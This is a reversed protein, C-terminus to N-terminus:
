AANKLKAIQKELQKIRQEKAKKQKDQLLDQNYEKKEKLMTYIIRALKHATALAAGKGGFKARMRRYYDGLPTKNSFLTSAAMRLSQGAKNKKKMVRSSIAKGGSVKTNPTLNLWAAFHKASKWKNMDVGTESILEIATVENVGPIKCLNVGSMQQLYSAVAFNFQNKKPKKPKKKSEKKSEKQEVNSIDGEQVIAVQQLLQEKIKQECESIQKQYFNYEDYGQQLMFLYEDKWIGQLSKIIDEPTAKIRPDKLELLIHPNREGALISQVMLMGTKGLIDSIVTHIKINMLELAKQMRRVTDSCITVINKRQRIYTRLIRYDGDPQFSKQLLGCTHLKQIWIADTDDKKRGTVNKVHRANVLYPEIGAEELMLYLPLWYVGTSEMAVTTIKNDKMDQVISQLDVTFANYRKVEHGGDGDAIAVFHETDGIDIGAAYPNLVSLGKGTKPKSVKVTEKKM